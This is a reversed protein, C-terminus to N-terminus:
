VGFNVQLVAFIAGAVIAVPVFTNLLLLVIRTAPRQIYDEIVVQMGLQMHYTAVGILLVVGVANLPSTLFDIAAVYSPSRMSLAVAIVFWAGLVILALASVRQGIFHGTGGGSAGHHRVRGLPTRMSRASDNM